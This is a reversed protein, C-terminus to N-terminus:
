SPLKYCFLIMNKDLFALIDCFDKFDFLFYTLITKISVNIQEDEFMRRLGHPTDIEYIEQPLVRMSRAIGSFPTPKSGLNENNLRERGDM